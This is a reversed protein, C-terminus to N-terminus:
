IKAKVVDHIALRGGLATRTDARNTIIRRRLPGFGENLFSYVTRNPVESDFGLVIDKSFQLDLSTKM